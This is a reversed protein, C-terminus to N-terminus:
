WNLSEVLGSFNRPSISTGDVVKELNKKNCSKKLHPVLCLCIKGGGQIASSQRPLEVGAVAGEVAGLDVDGQLVRELPLVLAGGDLKVELQGPPEVQSVYVLLALFLVWDHDVTRDKTTHLSHGGDERLVKSALEQEGRSITMLDEKNLCIATKAKEEDPWPQEQPEM